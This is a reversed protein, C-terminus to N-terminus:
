LCICLLIMAATNTLHGRQNLERPLFTMERALIVLSVFVDIIPITPQNQCM